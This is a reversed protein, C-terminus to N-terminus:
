LKTKTKNKKRKKRKSNLREEWDETIVENETVNYDVYDAFDEGFHTKVIELFREKIDAKLDNNYPEGGRRIWEAIEDAYVYDMMDDFDGSEWGYITCVVYDDNVNVNKCNELIELPDCGRLFDNLYEIEFIETEIYNEIKYERDLSLLDSDSLDNIADIITDKKEIEWGFSLNEMQSHKNTTTKM